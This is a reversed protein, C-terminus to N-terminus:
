NNREADLCKQIHEVEQKQFLEIVNLKSTVKEVYDLNIPLNFSLYYDLLDKGEYNFNFDHAWLHKNDKRVYLDPGDPGDSEYCIWDIKDTYKSIVEKENLTVEWSFDTKDSKLAILSSMIVASIYKESLYRDVTTDLKVREEYSLLKRESM